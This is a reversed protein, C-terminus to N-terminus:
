KRTRVLYCNFCVLVNDITVGPFTGGNDPEPLNRGCDGCENEKKIPPHPPLLDENLMSHFIRLDYDLKGGIDGMAPGRSEFLSTNRAASVVAPSASGHIYTLACKVVAEWTAKCHEKDVYPGVLDTNSVNHKQMFEEMMLFEEDFVIRDKERNLGFWYGAKM